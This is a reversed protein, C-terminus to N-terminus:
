LCQADFACVFVSSIILLTVYLFNRKQTNLCHVPVAFKDTGYLLIRVHM